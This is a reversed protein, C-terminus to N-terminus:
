GRLVYTKLHGTRGCVAHRPAGGHPPRRHPPLSNFFTPWPGRGPPSHCRTLHSCCLAMVPNSGTMSGTDWGIPTPECARNGIAPGVEIAGHTHRRVCIPAWTYSTRDRCAHSAHWSLPSTTTSLARRWAMMVLSRAGTPRAQPAGAQPAGAGSSSRTEGRM